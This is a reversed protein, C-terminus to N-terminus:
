DGSIDDAVGDAESDKVRQDAAISPRVPLATSFLDSPWRDVVVLEM